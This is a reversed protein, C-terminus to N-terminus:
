IEFWVHAPPGLTMGWSRANRGVMILGGAPRGIEVASSRTCHAVQVVEVRLFPDGLSLRLTIPQSASPWRASSAVLEETLLMVVDLRDRSVHECLCSRLWRRTASATDATVAFERGWVRKAESAIPMREAPRTGSL